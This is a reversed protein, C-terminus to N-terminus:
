FTKKRILEMVEEKYKDGLPIRQDGIHIHNDQIKTIQRLNVIYSQHVRAFPPPLQAEIDKLRRYTLLDIAPTVVRVYEKRGEFFLIDNLLVKRHENGSKIFFYTDDSQPEEPKREIPKQGAPQQGAPQQGAPQQGSPQMEPLQQNSARSIKLHEEVKLTAALFRKLTIPKLLYDITRYNYSELAHESHATTFIIAQGNPLISALEVGNILPMNIDLFILDVEHEKLYALADLAHYCKYALEWNTTQGILVELLSVAAPEDDVIM